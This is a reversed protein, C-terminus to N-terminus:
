RTTTTQQVIQNLQIGIAEFDGMANTYDRYAGLAETWSLHDRLLPTLKKQTSEASAYAKNFSAQAVLAASKIRRDPAKARILRDTKKAARKLLRFNSNAKKQADILIRTEVQTFRSGYDFLYTKILDNQTAGFSDINKVLQSTSMVMSLQARPQATAIGPPSVLSIAVAALVASTIIRLKMTSPRSPLGQREGEAQVWAVVFRAHRRKARHSIKGEL